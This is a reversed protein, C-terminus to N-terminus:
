YRLPRRYQDGCNSSSVNSLATRARINVRMRVESDEVSPSQQGRVAPRGIDGPGEAVFPPFPNGAQRFFGPLSADAEHQARGYRCGDRLARTGGNSSPIGRRGRHRDILRTGGRTSGQPVVLRRGRWTQRAPHWGVCLARTTPRKGKHRVTKPPVDFVEARCLGGPIAVVGVQRDCQTKPLRRSEM